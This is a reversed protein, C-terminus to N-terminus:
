GSTTTAKPTTTIPIIGAVFICVFVILVSLKFLPARLTVYLFYLQSLVVVEIYSMSMIFVMITLIISSYMHRQSPKVLYPYWVLALKGVVIKYVVLKALLYAFVSFLTRAFKANAELTSATAFLAQVGELPGAANHYEALLIFVGFGFFISAFPHYVLLSYCNFVSEFFSSAVTQGGRVAQIGDANFARTRGGDTTFYNNPVLAM